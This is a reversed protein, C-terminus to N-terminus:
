GLRVLAGGGANACATPSGSCLNYHTSQYVTGGPGSTNNPGLYTTIDNAGLVPGTEDTVKSSTTKVNAYIYNLRFFLRDRFSSSVQSFMGSGQEEAMVPAALSALVASLAVAFGTRTLASFNM